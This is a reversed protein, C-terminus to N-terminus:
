RLAGPAPAWPQTRQYLAEALAARLAQRNAQLKAGVSLCPGMVPTIATFAQREAASYPETKLIALTRAPDVESVCTAMEDVAIHRDTAVFWPRKYTQQRPLAPLQRVAAESGKILYESLMGRMVDPPFAVRRGEVLDNAALM